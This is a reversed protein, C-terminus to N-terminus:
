KNTERSGTEISTIQILKKLISPNFLCISKLLKVCTLYKVYKESLCESSTLKLPISKTVM